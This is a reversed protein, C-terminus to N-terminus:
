EEKNPIKDKIWGWIRKFLNPKKEPSTDRELITSVEKVDSKSVDGLINAIENKNDVACCEDSQTSNTITNNGIDDSVSDDVIRKLRKIRFKKQKHKIIVGSQNTYSLYVMGIFKSEYCEKPFLNYPIYIIVTNSIDNGLSRIVKSVKIENHDIRSLIPAGDKYLFDVQISIEGDLIEDTKLVSTIRMSPVGFEDKVNHDVRFVTIRASPPRHFCYNINFTGILMLTLPVIIYAVALVILLLFFRRIVKM